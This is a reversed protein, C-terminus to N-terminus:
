TSLIKLTIMFLKIYFILQDIMILKRKRPQLYYISKSLRFATLRRIHRPLLYYFTRIRGTNAKDATTNTNKTGKRKRRSMHTHTHTRTHTYTHIAHHTHTQTTHTHIHTYTHTNTHSHTMLLLLLSPSSSQPAPLLSSDVAPASESGSDDAPPLASTSATRVRRSCRCCPCAWLACSPALSSSTLAVLVSHQSVVPRLRAPFCKIVLSNEM